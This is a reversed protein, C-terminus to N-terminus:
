ENLFNQICEELLRNFEEPNDWFVLHGVDTMINAQFSPVYNRFAEVKTAQMDSNIAALPVKLLKLSETCNNNVWHMYARLSEQWGVKSVDEPYLEQLRKFNAEHNKKYFGMAILKEPSMNSVLDMMVSDMVPIMQPPYIFDPDHLNDVLVVGITKDSLQNATEIAVAGGMSFGVLIVKKFKLKDIVSIVDDAFAKITWEDRNNGSKGTGALDIAIARYKQSFHESQNNWIEKPNTWGHIFIITPNGKGQQNFVIQVGDSSVAKNEVKSTCSFIFLGFLIVLTYLSLERPKM